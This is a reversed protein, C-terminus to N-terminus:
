GTCGRADLQPIPCSADSISRVLGWMGGETFPRRLDGFFYDGVTHSRGGAGGVVIMDAAERPVLGVAQVLQANAIGPDYPWSMGGLSLVHPQESGPAEVVHVRLPDGAYAKIVATNPDGNTLSSFYNADIVRGQTLVSRYNLLAPGRVATPYPMVNQGIIDDDDSLLVTADRYSQGNPRHVDVQVGIETPLGALDTFETTDEPAVVVAGYLGSKGTDDGGFDSVLATRLRATDAYYM